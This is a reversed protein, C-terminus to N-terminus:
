WPNLPWAQSSDALVATLLILVIATYLAALKLSLSQTHFAGLSITSYRFVLFLGKSYWALLFFLLHHRFHFFFFTMFFTPLYFFISFAYFSLSTTAFGISLPCFNSLFLSIMLSSSARVCLFIMPRSPPRRPCVANIKSPVFSEIRLHSLRECTNPM